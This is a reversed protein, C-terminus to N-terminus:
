PIIQPILFKVVLFNYIKVALALIQTRRTIVTVTVLYNKVRNDTHRVYNRQNWCSRSVILRFANWRVTHICSKDNCEAVLQRAGEIAFHLFIGVAMEPCQQCIGTEM